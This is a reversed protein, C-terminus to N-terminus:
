QMNECFNYVWQNNYSKCKYIPQDSEDHIKARIFRSLTIHRRDFYAWTKRYTSAIHLQEIRVVLTALLILATNRLCLPDPRTAGRSYMNRNPPFKACSKLCIGQVGTCFPSDAKQEVPDWTM